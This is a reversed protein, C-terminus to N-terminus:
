AATLCSPGFITKIEAFLSTDRKIRYGDGFTMVTADGKANVVLLKVECYGPHSRLIDSLQKM